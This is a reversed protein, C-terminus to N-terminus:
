DDVAFSSGLGSVHLLDRVALSPKLTLRTLQSLQLLFGLLTCDAFTVETADVVTKSKLGPSSALIGALLSSLALDIEGRLLVTVKGADVLTTAHGPPTSTEASMPPPTTVPEPLASM